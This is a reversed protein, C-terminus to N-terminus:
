GHPYGKTANISASPEAEAIITVAQLAAFDHHPSDLKAVRIGKARCMSTVEAISEAMHHGILVLSLHDLRDGLQDVALPEVTWDLSREALQERLARALFTSSVGAGCLVAVTQSM